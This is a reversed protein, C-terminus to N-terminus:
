WFHSLELRPICCGGPLPRGLSETAALLAPLWGDEPLITGPGLGSTDSSGSLHGHRLPVEPFGPHLPLSPFALLPAGFCTYGPEIVNQVTSEKRMPEVQDFAVGTCSLRCKGELVQELPHVIALFTEVDGKRFGLFLQRCSHFRVAPREGPDL